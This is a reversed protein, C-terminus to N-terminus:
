KLPWCHARCGSLRLCSPLLPFVSHDRWIHESTVHAQGSDTLWVVLSREVPFQVAQPNTTARCMYEFRVTVTHVERNLAHPRVIFVPLEGGIWFPTGATICCQKIDLRWCFFLSHFCLGSCQSWTSTDRVHVSLLKTSTYGVERMRCLYKYM